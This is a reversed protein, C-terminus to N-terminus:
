PAVQNPPLVAVGDKPGVEYLIPAGSEPVLFLARGYDINVGSPQPVGGFSGDFYCFAVVSTGAMKTLPDTVIHSRGPAAWKIMEAATSAFAGSVSTGGMGRAVDM